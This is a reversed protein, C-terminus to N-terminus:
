MEGKGSAEHIHIAMDKNEKAASTPPPPAPQRHIAVAQPHYDYQYFSSERYEAILDLLAYPANEPILDRAAAPLMCVVEVSLNNSEPPLATPSVGRVEFGLIELQVATGLLSTSGDSKTKADEPAFVFFRFQSALPTSNPALAVRKPVPELSTLEEWQDVAVSQRVFSKPLRLHLSLHYRRSEPVVSRPADASPLILKKAWSDVVMEISIPSGDGGDPIPSFQPGENAQDTKKSLRDLWKGTLSEGSKEKAVGKSLTKQPTAATQTEVRVESTEYGVLAVGVFLAVLLLTSYRELM